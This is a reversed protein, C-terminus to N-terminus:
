LARSAIAFNCLVAGTTQMYISLEQEKLQPWGAENSRMSKSALPITVAM